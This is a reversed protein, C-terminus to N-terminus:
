NIKRIYYIIRQLGNPSYPGALQATHENLNYVEMERGTDQMKLVQKEPLVDFRSCTLIDISDWCMKNGQFSILIGPQEEFGFINEQEDILVVKDVNWNGQLDSQIDQIPAVYPDCSVMVLAFFLLIFWEAVDIGLFKVKLFKM